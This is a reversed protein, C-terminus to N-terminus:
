EISLYRLYTQGSRGVVELISEPTSWVGCHMSFRAMSESGDIRAKITGGRDIRTELERRLAMGTAM